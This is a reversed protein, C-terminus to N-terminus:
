GARLPRLGRRQAITIEVVNLMWHTALSVWISGSWLFLVSLVLGLLTTGVVGWEGQSWHLLGFVLALPWMLVWPSVLWALGALPMSRFLLEEVLAAPLLALVVALWERRDVPVIARLLRNDYVGDGWRTVVYNGAWVIAPALLLGVVAGLGFDVLLRDTRWGLTEIGPGIAIGIVVCVLILLLRALNDSLFLLLNTKPTFRQLLRGSQVTLWGMAATLCVLLATFILRDTM